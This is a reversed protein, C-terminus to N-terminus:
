RIKLGVQWQCEEWWATRQRMRKRRMWLRWARHIAWLPGWPTPTPWPWSGDFQDTSIASKHMIEGNALRGVTPGNPPHPEARRQRSHRRQWTRRRRQRTRDQWSTCDGLPQWRRSNRAPRVAHRCPRVSRINPCRPARRPHARNSQMRWSSIGM